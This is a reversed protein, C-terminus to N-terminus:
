TSVGEAGPETSYRQYYCARENAKLLCAHPKTQTLQSFNRWSHSGFNGVVPSAGPRAPASSETSMM